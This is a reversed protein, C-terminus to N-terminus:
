EDDDDDQNELMNEYLDVVDVEVRDGNSLHLVTYRSDRNDTEVITLEKGM